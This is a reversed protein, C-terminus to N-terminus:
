GSRAIPAQSPGARTRSSRAPRVAPPGTAHRCADGPLRTRCPSGSVADLHSVRRWILGGASTVSRPSGGCVVPNRPPPHVDPSPRLRATSMTSPACV